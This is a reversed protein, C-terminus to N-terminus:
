RPIGGKKREGSLWSGRVGFRDYIIAGAAYRSSGGRGMADQAGIRRRESRWRGGFPEDAAEM